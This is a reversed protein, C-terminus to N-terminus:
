SQISTLIGKEMKLLKDAYEWVQRDHTVVFVTGGAQAHAKLLNMVIETNEEDLDGTPEDALIIEPQLLM